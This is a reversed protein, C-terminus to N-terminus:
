KAVTDWHKSYCNNNTNYKRFKMVSDVEDWCYETLCKPCRIYWQFFWFTNCGCECEFSEDV